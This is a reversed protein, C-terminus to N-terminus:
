AHDVVNVSVYKYLNLNSSNHYLSGYITTRAIVWSVKLTLRDGERRNSVPYNEKTQYNNIETCFLITSSMPFNSLENMSVCM